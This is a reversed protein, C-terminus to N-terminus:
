AIIVYKTFLYALSLGRYGLSGSFLARISKFSCKSLAMRYGASLSFSSRINKPLSVDKLGSPTALILVAYSKVSFNKDPTCHIALSWSVNASMLQTAVTLESFSSIGISSFNYGLM